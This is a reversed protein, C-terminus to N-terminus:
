TFHSESSTTTSDLASRETSIKKATTVSSPHLVYNCQSYERMKKSPGFNTEIRFRLSPSSPIYKSIFNNHHNKTPVPTGLAEPATSGVVTYGGVFAGFALARWMINVVNKGTSHFLGSSNHRRAGGWTLPLNGSNPTLLTQRTVSGWTSLVVVVVM